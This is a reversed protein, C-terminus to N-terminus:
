PISIIRLRARLTLSALIKLRLSIEQQLVLLLIKIPLAKNVQRDQLDM